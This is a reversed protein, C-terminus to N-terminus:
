EEDGEPIFEFWAGAGGWDQFATSRIMANHYCWRVPDLLYPRQDVFKLEM